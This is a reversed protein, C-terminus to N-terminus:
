NYSDIEAVVEDIRENHARVESAAYKARNLYAGVNMVLIGGMPLMINEKAYDSLDQKTVSDLGITKMFTEYDSIFDDDEAAIYTVVISSGNFYIGGGMKEFNLEDELEEKFEKIESKSAGMEKGYDDIFDAIVEVFDDKSIGFKLYGKNKGNFYFEDKSLENLDFEFDDFIDIDEDGALVTIDDNIDDQADLIGKFLQGAIKDNGLDIYAVVAMNEKGDGYVFVSCEEIDDLDLEMDTDLYDNLVDLVEEIDDDDVDELVDEMADKDLTLLVGDEPDADEMDDVDDFVDVDLKNAAKEMKKNDVKGVKSCGTFIGLLMSACLVTAIIKKSKM